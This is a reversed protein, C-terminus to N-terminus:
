ELVGFRGEAPRQQLFHEKAAGMAQGRLWEPRLKTKTCLHETVRFLQTITGQQEADDEQRRLEM